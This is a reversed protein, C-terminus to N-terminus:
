SVTCSYKKKTMDKSRVHKIFTLAPKSPVVSKPALLTPPPLVFHPSLAPVWPSPVIHSYSINFSLPVQVLADKWKRVWRMRGLDTAQERRERRMVKRKARTQAVHAEPMSSGTKVGKERVPSSDPKPMEFHDAKEQALVLRKSIPLWCDSLSM